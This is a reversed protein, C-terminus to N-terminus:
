SLGSQALVASNPELIQIPERILIVQGRGLLTSISTNRDHTVSVSWRPAISGRNGFLTHALAHTSPSHPLLAFDVVRTRYCLFAPTQLSNSSGFFMFPAKPWLTMSAKMEAIPFPAIDGFTLKLEREVERLAAVHGKPLAACMFMRGPWAGPTVIDWQDGDVEFRREFEARVYAELEKADTLTDPWTQCWLRCWREDIWVAWQRRRLFGSIRQDVQLHGKLMDVAQQLVVEFDPSDPRLGRATEESYYGAPAIAVRQPSLLMISRETWRPWM